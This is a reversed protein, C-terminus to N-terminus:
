GEDKKKDEDEKKDEDKKKDKKKDIEKKTKQFTRLLTLAFGFLMLYFIYKTRGIMVELIQDRV